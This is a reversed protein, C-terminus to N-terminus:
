RPVSPVRGAKPPIISSMISAEPRRLRVREEHGFARFRLAITEARGCERIAESLRITKQLRGTPKRNMGCDSTRGPTRVADARSSVAHDDQTPGTSDPRWAEPLPFHLREPSVHQRPRARCVPTSDPGSSAASSRDSKRSVFGKRDQAVLSPENTPIVVFRLRGSGMPIVEAIVAARHDVPDPDKVERARPRRVLPASCLAHVPPSVFFQADSVQLGSDIQVCIHSRVEHQRVVSGCATRAKSEPETGGVLFELGRAGPIGQVRRECRVPWPLPYEPVPVRSEAPLDATCLEAAQRFEAPAQDM